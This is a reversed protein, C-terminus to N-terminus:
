PFFNADGSRGCKEDVSALDGVDGAHGVFQQVCDDFEVHRLVLLQQSSAIGVVLDCEVESLSSRIRFLHLRVLVEAASASSRNHSTRSRAGGFDSTPYLLQPVM